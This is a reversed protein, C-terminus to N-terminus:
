LKEASLWKNLSTEWENLTAKGNNYKVWVEDFQRHLEKRMKMLNYDFGEIEIGKIKNL